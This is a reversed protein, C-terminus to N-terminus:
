NIEASPELNTFLQGTERNNIKIVKKSSSLITRSRGHFNITNIPLKYHHKIDILSNEHRVDYIRVTGDVSGVGYLLGSSADTKIETIESGNNM